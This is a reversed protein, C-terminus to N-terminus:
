GANSDVVLSSINKDNILHTIVVKFKLTSRIIRNRPHSKVYFLQKGIWDLAFLSIHSNETDNSVLQKDSGDFNSKYVKRFNEFYMKREM